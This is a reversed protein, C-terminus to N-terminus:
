ICQIVSNIEAITMAWSSRSAVQKTLAQVVEANDLELIISMHIWKMAEKLGELCTLSEAEAASTCQHLTKYVALLVLGRCDRIIIMASAEGTESIYTANV